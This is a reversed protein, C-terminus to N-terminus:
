NRLSERARYLAVSMSGFLFGLVTGLLVLLIKRPSEYKDADPVIPPDIIRFSYEERVNALMKRRTQAEVLRYIAQQIDVITTQRLEKDLFALNESAERIDAQRMKRNVNAILKSAWRQALMPDKWRMRLTVLGSKQDVAVERIKTDFVRYADQITPVRGSDLKWTKSKADWRDAYIIQMLGESRIFEEGLSRSRLVFIAEDSQKGPQFAGALAALGGVKDLMQSLAGGKDDEHVASLVAESKYIKPALFAYTGFAVSFVITVAAILYRARWLVRLMPVFALEETSM